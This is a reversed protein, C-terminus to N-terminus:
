TKMPPEVFPFCNASCSASSPTWSPHIYANRTFNENQLEPRSVFGYHYQFLQRGDALM